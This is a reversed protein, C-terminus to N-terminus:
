VDTHQDGLAHRRESEPRVGHAAFEDVAVFTVGAGVTVTPPTSACGATVMANCRAGNIVSVTNDINNAVYITDTRQDVADWYPATGVTVTPPTLGRGSGDSGNCTAGDIVTVTDGTGGGDTTYITDTAQDIDLAQPDRADQVEKVPRGCGATTTANCTAGDIVYVSGGLNAVYLTRTVPNYADDVDFGGTQITALPTSCGRTDTANCTAGDVVSVTGVANATYITDTREDVAAALPDGGTRARAIVRCDTTVSANCTATNVVDMSHTLPLAPCGTICQIPVYLTHTQPNVAPVGPTGTINISGRQLSSGHAVAPVGLEVSDRQISGAVTPAGLYTMPTSSQASAQVSGGIATFVMAMVLGVLFRHKELRM